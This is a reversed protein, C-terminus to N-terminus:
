AVQTEKGPDLGESVRIAVASSQLTKAAEQRWCDPAREEGLQRSGRARKEDMGGKDPRTIDVPRVGCTDGGESGQGIGELSGGM